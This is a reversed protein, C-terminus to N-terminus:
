MPDWPPLVTPETKLIDLVRKPLYKKNIIVKYTYQDFWDDYM